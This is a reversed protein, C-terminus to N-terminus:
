QRVPLAPTRRCSSLLGSINWPCTDMRKPWATFSRDLNWRGLRTPWTMVHHVSGAFSTCLWLLPCCSLVVPWFKTILHFRSLIRPV